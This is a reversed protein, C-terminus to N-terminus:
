PKLTELIVRAVEEGLADSGQPSFHVNAELQL